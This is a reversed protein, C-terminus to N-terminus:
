HLSHQDSLSLVQTLTKLVGYFSLRTFCHTGMIGTSPSLVHSSGITLPSSQCLFVGLLYEGEHFIVKWPAM